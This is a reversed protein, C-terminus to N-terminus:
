WLGAPPADRRDQDVGSRMLCLEQRPSLQLGDRRGSLSIRRAQFAIRWDSRGSRPVNRAFRQGTSSGSWSARPRQRRFSRAPLQPPHRRRSGPSTQRCRSRAPVGAQLSPLAGPRAAVRVAGGGSTRGATTVTVVWGARAIWAGPGDRPGAGGAAFVSLDPVPANDIALNKHGTIAPPAQRPLASDINTYKAAAVLFIARRRELTVILGTVPRLLIHM